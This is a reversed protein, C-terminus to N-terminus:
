GFNLDRPPYAAYPHLNSEAQSESQSQVQPQAQPQAPTSADLLHSLFVTDDGSNAAHGAKLLKKRTDEARQAAISRPDNGAAYLNVAYNQPSTGHIHM